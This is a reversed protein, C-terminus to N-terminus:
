HYGNGLRKPRKPGNSATENKSHTQVLVTSPRSPPFIGCPNNSTEPDISKFWNQGVPSDSASVTFTRSEAAFANRNRVWAPAGKLTVCAKSPAVTFALDTFGRDVLIAAYCNAQLSDVSRFKMVPRCRWGDIMRLWRLCLPSSKVGIIAIESLKKALRGSYAEVAKKEFRTRDRDPADHARLHVLRSVDKISKPTEDSVNKDGKAPLLLVYVV